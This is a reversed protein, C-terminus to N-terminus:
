IPSNYKLWATLVKNAWKWKNKPYKGLAVGFKVVTFIQHLVAQFM